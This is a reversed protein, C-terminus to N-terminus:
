SGHIPAKPVCNHTIKVKTGPKKCGGNDDFCLEHKTKLGIPYRCLSEVKDICQNDLETVQIRCDGLCIGTVDCTGLSTIFDALLMSHLLLMCAGLKLAKM